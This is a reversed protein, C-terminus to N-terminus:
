IPVVVVGLAAVWVMIIQGIDVEVVELQHEVLVV